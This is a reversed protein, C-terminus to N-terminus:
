KLHLEKKVKELPIYKALPTRRAKALDAKAEESLEYKEESVKVVRKHLHKAVALTM